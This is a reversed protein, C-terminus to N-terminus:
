SCIEKSYISTLPPQLKIKLFIQIHFIKKESLALYLDCFKLGMPTSGSNGGHQADKMFISAYMDYLHMGSEEDLQSVRSMLRGVGQLLKLVCPVM